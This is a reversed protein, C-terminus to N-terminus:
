EIEVWEGGEVTVSRLYITANKPVDVGRFEMKSSLEELSFSITFNQWTDAKKFDTGKVVLSALVNPKGEGLLTTVVDLIIVKEPTLPEEIKLQYSVSYNLPLLTIYPGFWFTGEDMGKEHVLLEEEKLIEGNCMYLDEYGFSMKPPEYIVPQDKYDKELLIIGDDYALIGYGNKLAHFILREFNYYKFDHHRDDSLLYSVNLVEFEEIDAYIYCNLRTALHQSLPTQVLISADPPILELVRYIKEIHEDSFIKPDYAIGTINGITIPNLPTILFSFTICSLIFFLKGRRKLSFLNWNFGDLSDVLAIFLVPLFYSGYHWGVCLNGLFTSFMLAGIYPLLSLIFPSKLPLFGFPAFIALLFFLKENFHYTLSDYLGVSWAGFVRPTFFPMIFSALAYWGFALLLTIGFHKKTFSADPKDRNIFFEVIAYFGILISMFENTMLSLLLTVYYLVYNKKRLFYVSSFMLLPFFTTAQFDALNLTHLAPYILYLISALLALKEGLVNKALYYAPIVSLGIALSKIILLTEACPVVSFIPVLLFLIPSFHIGLYSGYYPYGSFHITNVADFTEYLPMGHFATTYLAQTHAGLDIYFMFNRYRYLCIVSFVLSYVFSIAIVVCDFYTLKAKLIDKFITLKAKLM